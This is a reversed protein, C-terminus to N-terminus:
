RPRTMSTAANSAVGLSALVNAYSRRAEEAGALNGAAHHAAILLRWSADRFPDIDISRRAASAAQDPRHQDLHLRGLQAAAEAARVQYHERHPLVWETPGDEPLVEGVYVDLAAELDAIARDPDGTASATEAAATRDDFTRLDSVSGDPLALLYRDGDRVVLRSAGRAVGPELATRLGSVCVHLNHLAAAGDLQPWMAEAIVERHAPHGAHLALLRLLARARPRVAHLDPAVGDVLIDFGGFCRVAVPPRRVVAAVASTQTREPPDATAPSRLGLRDIEAQAHARLESDDRCTALALRAVALAGPVQASHAFGVASEADRGADPLHALAASLALGSRAWSELAPADLERCRRVVDDFARSAPHAARLEAVAGFGTMLLAGWADGRDDAANAEAALVDPDGAHALGNAVRAFWPFGLEEAQLAAADARDPEDPHLAAALLDAACALVPDTILDLSRDLRSRAATLDGGITLELAGLVARHARPLATTRDPNPRRVAARLCETWRDGPQLDGILWTRCFRAVEAATAAPPQSGSPPGEALLDLATRLRGDRRACEARATRVLPHDIVDPPAADLWALDPDALVDDWCGALLTLAEPWSGGSAWARAAAPATSPGASGIADALIEAAARFALSAAGPGSDVTASTLLDARLVRPLAFGRGDEVPTLIGRRALRAISEDSGTRGLLRDCFAGVLAEFPATQRLFALDATDLDALFTRTLYDRAYSAGDGLSALASHRAHPGRGAVGHHILHLAAAWGDTNRALARADEASIPIRYEVRFLEAVEVPRFRLDAPGVVHSAVESRALNLPPLVRSGVALHVHDGTALVLRELLAGVPDTAVHQFDDLVIAVPGSHRDLAASVDAVEPVRPLRAGSPRLAAGIGALVDAVPDATGPQARWWLVDVPAQRAWHALATTKGSGPPAVVACVRVDRLRDLTAVVRPRVLGGSPPIRLDPPAQQRAPAATPLTVRDAGPLGIRRTLAGVGDVAPAEPLERESM